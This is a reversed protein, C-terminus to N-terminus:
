FQLAELIQMARQRALELSAQLKSDLDGVAPFFGNYPPEKASDSGTAQPTPGHLRTHITELTGLLDNAEAVRAALRHLLSEAPATDRGPKLAGAPNLNM